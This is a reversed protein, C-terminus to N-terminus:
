DLEHEAAWEVNLKEQAIWIAADALIEGLSAM